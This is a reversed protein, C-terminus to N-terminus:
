ILSEQSINCIIRMATDLLSDVGQKVQINNWFNELFAEVVKLRWGFLIEVKSLSHKSSEWNRELTKKQWFWM